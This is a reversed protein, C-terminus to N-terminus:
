SRGLLMRVVARAAMGALEIWASLLARNIAPDVVHQGRLYRGLWLLFRARARLDRWRGASQATCSADHQRYKAWIRDDVHCYSVLHTKAFFVQDEFMGRFAEEFGGVRDVLARRMIANISTPTQAKNHILLPLLSAPPYLRDPEVGLDHCYDRTKANADWEHWILTRGYVMDAEPTADLVAIQEVLKHPLWVDDADLFAIFAGRAAAIGANRSASMGRNAHDPHSVYRVRDGDAADRAIASSADTSGDDVLILEWDAYSQAHVSAIAEALFRAENLFIIIISVTVRPSTSM